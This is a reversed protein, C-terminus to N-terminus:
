PKSQTKFFEIIRKPAGQPVEHGGPHIFTIVTPGNKSTYETCWQGAPKGDNDCGDIERDKVMMQEQFSFKVLPDKEGAVHLVPKPKLLKIDRIDLFASIPAVAALEDGRAAWLVYTFFGGNSHGSAYIRHEDIHYDAKMTKLMADFFALDRDGQDGVSKQWGPMKGEPDIKGTATLLGQPYVCIAEPWLDHYDFKRAAFEQTGGHGHFAFIIPPSAGPDPPVYVLAERKVGGVEWTMQKLKSLDARGGLRRNTQAAVFSPVGCLFALALAIWAIHRSM